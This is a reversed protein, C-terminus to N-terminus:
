FTGYKRLRSWNVFTAIGSIVAAALVSAQVSWIKLAIILVVLFVAATRLELKLGDLKREIHETRNELVNLTKEQESENMIWIERDGCWKLSQRDSVLEEYGAM